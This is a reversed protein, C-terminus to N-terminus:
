IGTYFGIFAATLVLVPLAVRVNISWLYICLGIIFSLLACHMLVPLYTIVKKMKWTKIGDWRQQRRRAQEYKPGSRGSMFSYCWSKSLIAILSVIVSLSLSFFWLTNVLVSSRSPSFSSNMPLPGLASVSQKDSLAILNQSIILLTQASVKAPDEQLQKSSEIVLATTTASFLAAQL